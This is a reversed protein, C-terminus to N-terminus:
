IIRASHTASTIYLISKKRRRENTCPFLSIFTHSHHQLPFFHPLLFVWSSLHVRVCVHILPFIPALFHGRPRDRGVSPVLRCVRFMCNSSVVVVVMLKQTERRVFRVLVLPLCSVCRVGSQFSIWLLHVSLLKIIRFLDSGVEVVM